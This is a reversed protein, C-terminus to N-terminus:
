NVIRLSIVSCMFLTAMGLECSDRAFLRHDNQGAKRNEAKSQCSRHAAGAM